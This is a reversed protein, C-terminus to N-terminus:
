TKYASNKIDHMTSTPETNNCGPLVSAPANNVLLTDLAAKPGRPVADTKDFTVITAAVKNITVASIIESGTKLPFTETKCLVSSVGASAGAFTGSALALMAAGSAFAFAAFLAAVFADAGAAFVSAGALLYSKTLDWISLGLHRLQYGRV